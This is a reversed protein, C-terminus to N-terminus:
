LLTNEGQRELKRFENLITKGKTSEKIEMAAKEGITRWTEKPVVAKVTMERSGDLSHVAGEFVIENGKLFAFASIPVSCGGELHYLFNREVTVVIESDPHNIKQCAEFVINNDERCIVVIAGQAPAPVMWDLVTFYEPLLGLRELGAKAFIIGDWGEEKFKRLRTQVNGRVNVIDHQAFRHHWQSRRRISSTAIVANNKKSPNFGELHVLIDDGSARELVAAMVLGKPLVTPVDKLSHVAIDAHNNLLAIDLEKTFVGQVGMAYIPNVLDIDGTTELPVLQSNWGHAELKLRM